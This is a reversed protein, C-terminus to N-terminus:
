FKNSITDFSNNSIKKQLSHLAGIFDYLTDKTIELIFIDENDFLTMKVGDSEKQMELFADKKKTKFKYIM